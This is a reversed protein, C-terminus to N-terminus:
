HAIRLVSTSELTLPGYGIMAIISRHTVRATVKVRRDVRNDGDPWIISIQVDSPDLAMFAPQAALAAPHTSDARLDLAAPGWSDQTASAREGHVIAARAVRRAVEAVVSYRVLALSLELMGLLLVLCSILIIASEVTIVGTRSAALSRPPSHAASSDRM